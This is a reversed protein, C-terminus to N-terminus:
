PSAHVEERIELIQQRRQGSRVSLVEDDPTPCDAEVGLRAEGLIEIQEDPGVRSVQRPDDIGQSVESRRGGDELLDLLEAGVLEEKDSDGRRPDVEQPRDGPDVKLGRQRAGGSRVPIANRGNDKRPVVQDGSKFRRSRPL